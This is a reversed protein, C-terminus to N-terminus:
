FRPLKFDNSTRRVRKKTKKKTGKKTPKKTGTKVGLMKRIESITMTGKLRNCQRHTIKVNKLNTTGGKSFAKTHDFEADSLKTVRKTCINCTHPNNEWCWVKQAHTLTRKPPKETGFGFDLSGIGFPDNRPM